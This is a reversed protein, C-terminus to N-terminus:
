SRKPVHLIDRPNSSSLHADPPLGRLVVVLPAGAPRAVTMVTPALHSCCACLLCNTECDDEGSGSPLTAISVCADRSILALAASAQLSMAVILVLALGRVVATM